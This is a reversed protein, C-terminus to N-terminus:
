DLGVLMRALTSKDCGSEGVVGLTEGVHITLDIGRVARLAPLARGLWSRGGGFTRTLGDVSLLAESMPGSPNPSYLAGRPNRGL